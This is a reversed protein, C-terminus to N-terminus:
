ESGPDFEGYFKIKIEINSVKVRKCVDSNKKFIM